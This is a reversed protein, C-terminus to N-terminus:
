TRRGQQQGAPPAPAGAPGSPEGQPARLHDGPVERDAQDLLVAPHWDQARCGGILGENHGLAQDVEHVVRHAGPAQQRRGARRDRGPRASGAVGYRQLLAGRGAERLGEAVYVWPEDAQGVHQGAEDAAQQGRAAQGRGGAAQPREGEVRGALGRTAACWSRGTLLGGHWVAAARQPHRGQSLRHPQLPTAQRGCTPTGPPATGAQAIRGAPRTCSPVHAASRKGQGGNTAVKRCGSAQGAPHLDSVAM